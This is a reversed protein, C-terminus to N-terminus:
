FGPRFCAYAVLWQRTSQTTTSGQNSNSGHTWGQGCCRNALQCHLLPAAARVRRRLTAGLNSDGRDQGSGPVGEAM